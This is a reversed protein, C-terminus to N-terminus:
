RAEKTAILVAVTALSALSGASCYRLRGAFHLRDGLDPRSWRACQQSLINLAISSVTHIGYENTFAFGFRKLNRRLRGTGWLHLGLPDGQWGRRESILRAPPRSAVIVLPAHDTLQESFIQLAAPWSDSRPEIWLGAAAQGQARAPFRQLIEDILEPVDCRVLPPDIPALVTMAGDLAFRYDHPILADMPITGIM